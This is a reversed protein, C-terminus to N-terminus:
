DRIDIVDENGTVLNLMTLYNVSLIFLLFYEPKEEHDRHWM